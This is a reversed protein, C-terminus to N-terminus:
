IKTAIIKGSIYYIRTTSEFGSDTSFTFWLAGDPGTLASYPTSDNKLTKLEYTFDRNDCNKTNAFDGIVIADSGGTSQNGKDINMVNVNNGDNIPLPEIISAGAKITVAEGPAGGVGICGSPANSAFTIEFQIQYQSRATFGNFQKKIFMFLDDSSNRGSVSFGSLSQLPAPLQAFDSSLEYSIDEGVPYDAFGAVWGDTDNDFKFDIQITDPSSVGDSGSGGNSCAILFSSLLFLSFIHYLVSM